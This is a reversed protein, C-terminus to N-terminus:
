IQRTHLGITPGEIVTWLGHSTNSLIDRVVRTFHATAGDRM